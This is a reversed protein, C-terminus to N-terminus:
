KHREKAHVLALKYTDLVYEDQLAYYVKRGAKRFKVLGADRLTALQHSVASQTMEVIHALDFVCIEGTLMTSLIRIRSPDSLGKYAQALLTATLGDVMQAQAAEIKEPDLHLEDCVDNLRKPM